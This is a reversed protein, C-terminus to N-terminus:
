NDEEYIFLSQMRMINNTIHIERIESFTTRINGLRQM